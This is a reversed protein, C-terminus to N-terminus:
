AREGLLDRLLAEYEAGFVSGKKWVANFEHAVDFGPLLIEKLAGTKLKEEGVARYLVSIGMGDLLMRLILHPSSFTHIRSFNGLSYNNEWLFREFIERTGSGEERLLLTEKFLDQLCRIHATDHEAGAFICMQERRILMHDYENKNFYGECLLCDLKGADILPLLAATDAVTVSIDTDDRRSLFTSLRDPLFFEGISLTAGLYFRKRKGIHSIDERIRRADHSLTQAMARLYTGEATLSLKKGCYRFLKVGYHEELFRIHQSVAPQTLSLAEAARTFNMYQCVTLFTTMRLDLM